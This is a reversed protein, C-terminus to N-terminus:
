TLEGALPQKRTMYRTIVAKEAVTLARDIVMVDGNWGYAPAINYTTGITQSELFTVGEPGVRAVTCASGLSSSFKATLASTATNSDAWYLNTQPTRRLYPKYATTTQIAPSCPVERVSVNDVTGSFPNDMGIRITNNGPLAVLYDVFTGSSNRITGGVTTGGLFKVDMLGALRTVTYKVEYLKGAVLSIPQTIAGDIGPSGIVVGGSYTVSGLITTWGDGSDFGGNTVLNDGKEIHSIPNWAGVVGNVSAQVTGASDEYYSSLASEWYGGLEGSAFMARIAAMDHLYQQESLSRSLDLRLPDAHLVRRPSAGLCDSRTPARRM